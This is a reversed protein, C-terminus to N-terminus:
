FDYRLAIEYLFRNKSEINTQATKSHLKTILEYEQYAISPIFYLGKQLEYRVGGHIGYYNSSISTDKKTSNILPDIQWDKKIKGLNVGLYPKYKHSFLYELQVGYSSIIIDDLDHKRYDISFSYNDYYTGIAIKYGLTKDDPTSVEIAGNVDSKDLHFMGYSLGLDIFFQKKAEAKNKVEKTDRTM